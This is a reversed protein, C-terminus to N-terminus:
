LTGSLGDASTRESRAARAALIANLEAVSSSASHTCLGPVLAHLGCALGAKVLRWAFGSAVGLHEFYSEGADELHRKSADIM